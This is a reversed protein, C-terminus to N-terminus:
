VASTFLFGSIPATLVVDFNEVVRIDTLRNDRDNLTEVTM